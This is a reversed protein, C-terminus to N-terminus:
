GANNDIKNDFKFLKDDVDICNTFIRWWLVLVM